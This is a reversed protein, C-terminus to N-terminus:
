CGNAIVTNHLTASTGLLASTHQHESIAAAKEYRYGTLCDGRSLRTTKTSAAHHHHFTRRKEVGTGFMRSLFVPLAQAPIQPLVEVTSKNMGVNKCIIKTLTFKQLYIFKALPQGKRTNGREYIGM